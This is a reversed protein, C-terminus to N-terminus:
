LARLGLAGRWGAQTRKGGKALLNGPGIGAHRADESVETM